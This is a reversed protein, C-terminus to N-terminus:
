VSKTIYPILSLPSLSFINDFVHFIPSLLNLIKILWFGFTRSRFLRGNLWCAIVGIRNFELVNELHFGSKEVLETLQKQTYRRQHGLVEDLTGFLGPGCPVLVIARGGDELVGRVNNLAHLGGVFHEVVNLCIVTDFKQDTPYSERKEGDIYGVRM